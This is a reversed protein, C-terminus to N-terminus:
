IKEKIRREAVDSLLQRRLAEASDFKKQDRMRSVFEVRLRQGYLDGEYDLLNTEVMIQRTGEFTPADGINTIGMFRRGDPLIAYTAYVGVAPMQLEPDPAINATPFGMKRGAQRGGIVTGEAAYLRGTLRKFAEVRGEALRERILTSSVAATGAKGGNSEPDDARVKSVTVTDIGAKACLTKLLRSDGAGGNGFTYNTGIVALAAGLGEELVRRVFEEPSQKAFATDFTDFYLEEIGEAEMLRAKEANTSLLRLPHEPALVTSPHNKFTYVAPILGRERCEKVLTRLLKRHGKHVGDFYGLAVGRRSQAGACSSRTENDKGADSSCIGPLGYCIRM